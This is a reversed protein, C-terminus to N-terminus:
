HTSPQTVRSADRTLGLTDRRIWRVTMLASVVALGAALGIWIGEGALSTWFGLVVGLPLGVGWYGIAAYIMPLRTDGLGRLMGNAAAQGSDFFQFLGAYVLFTVALDFAVEAGPAGVDLFVAVIPRGAVILALMTVCAYGVALGFATWGARGIGERDSAGYALGVRVTAAMGLGLPVMFVLSAVQIAIAHAALADANILGMLFAAANFITVEFGLSLAIPLGLRWVERYRKWDPRWFRGFLFYRRFRRHVAVIIALGLFMLANTITTGVGAGELGMPPIGLGGFMLWYVIAANVPIAAGGVWMAALPRELASIFNRLVVFALFPLIGWQLTRLYRAAERALEPEQGLRLMIWEGNWLIAWVPISITAAAWIGQRVSRRVDRVSHRKRGLEIAILPSTATVLGIGFILFAFNLNTALAGAALAEPGLWGMMIVDTTGLALNSLNILILPWALSLTARVEAGWAGRSAFRGEAIDTM